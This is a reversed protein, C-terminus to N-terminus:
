TSRRVYRRLHAVWARYARWDPWAGGLCTVRAALNGGLLLAVGLALPFGAFEQRMAFLILLVPVAVLLAWRRRSSRALPVVQTLADAVLITVAVATSVLEAIGVTGLSHWQAWILCLGALWLAVALGDWGEFQM